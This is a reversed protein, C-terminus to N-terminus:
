AVSSAALVLGPSVVRCSRGFAVVFTALYIALPLVWLLPLAAVDPTIFTTVGLMLSCNVVLRFPKRSSRLKELLDWVQLLGRAITELCGVGYQNTLTPM